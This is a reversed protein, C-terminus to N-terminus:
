YYASAIYTNYSNFKLLGYTNYIINVHKFRQLLYSSITLKDTIYLSIRYTLSNDKNAYLKALISLNVSATLTYVSHSCLYWNGGGPMSNLLDKHKNLSPLKYSDSLYTSKTKYYFGSIYSAM